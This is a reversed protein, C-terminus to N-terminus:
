GEDEFVVRDPNEPVNKILWGPTIEVSAGAVAPNKALVAEADVPSLGAMQAALERQQAEDLVQRAEVDASIQLRTGREETREVVPPNVRMEKIPVTYGPPASTTLEEALDREFDVEAQKLDIVTVQLTMASQLSVSESREGVSHDFTDQQDLVKVGTVVFGQDGNEGNVARTALDSAADSAQDLLVDQDGQAVVRFDQDTGGSTPEMRNSYYIGNPLRGGIEGVGVNGSTGGAAAQVQGTAAGPKGTAADVAPVEVAAAFTFETGDETSVTTGADVTVPATGANRLEIPGGAALDPVTESGTASTEGSWTVEVQQQQTPFALAAGSDLPQGDTTADFVIATSVDQTRPVYRVIAQPTLARFLFAAGVVMLALLIAVPLWRRPPNRRVLEHAPTTETEEPVDDSVATAQVPWLLVPDPGSYVEDEPEAIEVPPPLLPPAAVAPQTRRKPAAAMQLGLREGLKLRLPDSTRVVVSLREEDLAAKLTRFENATLLLPSELPVILHVTHGGAAAARIRELVGPLSEDDRVVVTPQRRTAARAESM